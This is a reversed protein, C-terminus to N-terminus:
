AAASWEGAATVGSKNRPGGQMMFHDHSIPQRGHVNKGTTEVAYQVGTDRRVYKGTNNLVSIACQTTEGFTVGDLTENPELSRAGHISSDSTLFADFFPRPLPLHIQDLAIIGSPIIEGYGEPQRWNHCRSGDSRVQEPTWRAAFVESAALAAGHVGSCTRPSPATSLAPRDSFRVPRHGRAATQFGLAEDHPFRM